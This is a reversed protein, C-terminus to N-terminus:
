EKFDVELTESYPSEGTGNRAKVRYRLTAKKHPVDLCSTINSGLVAVEVFWCGADKNKNNATQIMCREVIFSDENTSNDNWTLAVAKKYVITAVLSTPRNPPTAAPGPATGTAARYAQVLGYGFQWDRGSPGLDLATSTLRQRIQAPSTVGNALVLAAAGAVHPAAFSSGTLWAYGGGPITSKINVGPAALEVEPGVSSGAAQNASDTASIAIVSDYRAPYDVSGGGNGASAIHVVGAAYANDFVQQIFSGPNLPGGYSNNTIRGGYEVCRDIASAADIFSGRGSSDLIKLAIIRAGPAVGVVGFGNDNAAIIGAVHTGHGYDDFPDSDGNVFDWSAAADCRGQLDPHNCDIGSDIVCVRAGGGTIAAQHASGAGIREVGWSDTLEQDRAYVPVDPEIASISSNSKLAALKDKPVRAAIAPLLRFNHKVKGGHAKVFLEEAQGPKQKFGVLVTVSDDAPQAQALLLYPLALLFLASCAVGKRDSNREMM